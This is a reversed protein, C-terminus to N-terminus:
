KGYQNKRNFTDLGKEENYIGALNRERGEWILNTMKDKILIRCKLIIELLDQRAIKKDKKSRIWSISNMSDTSITDAMICFEKLCHYIGLIEAENNTMGEKEINEVALVTNNEDLITYGGGVPSPNKLKTFGDTFFKM